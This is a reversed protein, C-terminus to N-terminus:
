PDNELNRIRENDAQRLSHITQRWRHIGWLLPITLLGGAMLWVIWLKPPNPPSTLRIVPSAAVIRGDSGRGLIRISWSSDPAIRNILARARHGDVRIDVDKRTTWITRPAANMSTFELSRYQIEFSAPPPSPLPWAIEIVGPMASLTELSDIMRCEAPIDEHLLPTAEPTQIVASPTEVVRPPLQPQPPSTGPATIKPARLPISLTAGDRVELAFAAPANKGPHNWTAAFTKRGGPPLVVSAPDPTLILGPPPSWSFEAPQGGQNELAFVTTAPDEAKSFELDEAPITVVRAPLAAARVPFERHSAGWSFTLNGAAAQTHGEVAAVDLAAEGQAPIKVQSDAAFGEPVGVTLELPTEGPNRLRLSNRFGNKESLELPPADPFEVLRVVRARLQTRAAPFGPFHIEGTLEGPDGARLHIDWVAGSGPALDRPVPTNCSWPADVTPAVRASSGGANQIRLQKISAGGEPVEGFDLEAPAELRAPPNAIRITVTAPASVPSDVAQVAFRFSDMGSGQSADHTYTILASTRDLPRPEGLVGHAPLSRVLFKPPSPIRGSAKLLIEVSGGREVQAAVPEAMPPPVPMEQGWSLSSCATLTAM